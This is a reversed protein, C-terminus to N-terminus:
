KIKLGNAFAIKFEKAGFFEQHTFDFKTMKDLKHKKVQNIVKVNKKSHNDLLMQAQELTGLALIKRIPPIIFDDSEYETWKGGSNILDTIVLNMDNFKDLFPIAYKEIQHLVEKQFQNKAIDSKNITWTKWTRLPTMYGLQKFYICDSDDFNNEVNWQKMKKSYVAISVKISFYRHIEFYIEQTIDKNLKRKYRLGKKLTKFGYKSFATELEKCTNIAFQREETM